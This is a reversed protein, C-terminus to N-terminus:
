LIGVQGRPKPVTGQIKEKQKKSLDPDGGWFGGTEDKFIGANEKLESQAVHDSRGITSQWQRSPNPSL